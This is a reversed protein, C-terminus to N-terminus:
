ILNGVGGLVQYNSGGNPQWMGRYNGLMGALGQQGQVRGAQVQQGTNAFMNALGQQGQVGANAANVNQQMQAPALNPMQQPQLKPLEIKNNEMNVGTYLIILTDKVELWPVKM